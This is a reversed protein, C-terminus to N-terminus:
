GGSSLLESEGADTLPQGTEIREVLATLRAQPWEGYDPLAEKLLSWAKGRVNTTREIEGVLEQLRELSWAPRTHTASILQRFSEKEAATLEPNHRARGDSHNLM